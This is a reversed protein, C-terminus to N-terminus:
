EVKFEPADWIVKMGCIGERFTHRPGKVFDTEPLLILENEERRTLHVRTPNKQNKSLYENMLAVIQFKIKPPQDM